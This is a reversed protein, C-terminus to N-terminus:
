QPEEPSFPCAVERPARRVIKFRMGYGVGSALVTLVSVALGVVNFLDPLGLLHGFWAFTVCVGIFIFLAGLALSGACFAFWFVGAAFQEFYRTM